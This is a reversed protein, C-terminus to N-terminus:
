LVEVSHVDCKPGTVTVWRGGINVERGKVELVPGHLPTFWGKIFVRLRAGDNLRHKFWAPGPVATTM